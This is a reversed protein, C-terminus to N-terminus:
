VNHSRIENKRGACDLVLDCAADFAKLYEPTDVFYAIGHGAGKIETLTYNEPNVSRIKRSMECPVFRDDDGHILIVPIKNTIAAKVAGSENLYIGAFLRAALTLIPKVPAAPIGMSSAVTCIIDEPSSYPCDAAIARVNAPLDLDPAMLVTAAGMSVGMLMIAVDSGQRKIIYEVWSKCDRREKIGFTITKGESKGHARQDVLLVSIGRSLCYPAGGCADRLATSRYGHFMIAVPAGEGADYFRGFLKLGDYSTIWVPEYPRAALRKVHDVLAQAYPNYQPNDAPMQDDKPHKDRRSAFAMRYIAAMAALLIAAIILIALIIYVM